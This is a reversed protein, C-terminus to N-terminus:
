GVARAPGRSTVLRAWISGFDCYQLYRLYEGLHPNGGHGPVCLTQIGGRGRAVRDEDAGVTFYIIMAGRVIGDNYFKWVSIHLWRPTRVVM